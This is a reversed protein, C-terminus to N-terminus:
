KELKVAKMIPDKLVGKITSVSAELFTQGDRVPGDFHEGAFTDDLRELLKNRENKTVGLYTLEGRFDLQSSVLVKSALISSELLKQWSARRQTEIAQLPDAFNQRDLKLAAQDGSSSKMYKNWIAREENNLRIQEACLRLFLDISKLMLGNDVTRYKEVLNEAIRWSINERILFEVQEIITKNNLYADALIAMRSGVRDSSAQLYSLAIIYDKIFEYKRIDPNNAIFAQLDAPKEQAWLPSAVLFSIVIITCLNKMRM